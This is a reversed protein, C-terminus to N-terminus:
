LHKEYCAHEDRSGRRFQASLVGKALELGTHHRIGHNTGVEAAVADDPELIKKLVHSREANRSGIRLTEIQVAVAADVEVIEKEEGVRETTENLRVDGGDLNGRGSYSGM